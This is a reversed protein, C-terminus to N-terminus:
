ETEELNSIIELAVKGATDRYSTEQPSKGYIAFCYGNYTWDIMFAVLNPLGFSTSSLLTNADSTLTFFVPSSSHIHNLCLKQLEM